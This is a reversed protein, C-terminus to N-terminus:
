LEKLKSIINGRRLGKVKIGKSAAHKRLEGWAMKSYDIIDLDTVIELSEISAKTQEEAIQEELDIQEVKPFKMRKGKAVIEGRNAAGQIQNFMRTICNGCGLSTQPLRKDKITADYITRIEKLIVENPVGDGKLFLAVRDLYPELDQINM